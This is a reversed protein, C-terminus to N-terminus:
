RKRKPKGPAKRKAKPEKKLAGPWGSQVHGGGPPWPFRMRSPHVGPDGPADPWVHQVHGGNYPDEANTRLGHQVHGGQMANQQHEVDIEHNVDHARDKPPDEKFLGVQAITLGYAVAWGATDSDGYFDNRADVDFTLLLALATFPYYNGSTRRAM